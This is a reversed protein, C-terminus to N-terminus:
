LAEAQPQQDTTPSPVADLTDLIQQAQWRVHENSDSLALKSLSRATTEDIAPVQPLAPDIRAAVGALALFRVDPSPDSQAREILAAEPIAVYANLAADLARSRVRWDDDQLANLVAPVAEPAGTRAYAELQAVRQELKDDSPMSTPAASKSVQPESKSDPEVSQAASPASSSSVSPADFLTRASTSETAIDASRSVTEPAPRMWQSYVIWALCTSLSIAVLLLGKGNEEKTHTPKPPAV